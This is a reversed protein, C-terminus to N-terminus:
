PRTQMRSLRLSEDAAKLVLTWNAGDRPYSASGFHLTLHFERANGPLTFPPELTARLKAVIQELNNANRLLPLLVAFEYDRVRGITDIERTVGLLRTSMATLLKDEIEEKPEGAVHGWNTLQILVIGFIADQRRALALAFQFREIVVHRVLLGTVPDTRSLLAAQSKSQILRNDAGQLELRAQALVQELRMVRGRLWLILGLAIALLSGCTVVYPLNDLGPVIM